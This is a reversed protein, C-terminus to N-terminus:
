LLHDEGLPIMLQFFCSLAAPLGLLRHTLNGLSGFAVVLSPRPPPYPLASARDSRRGQALVPARASFGEAGSRTCGSRSQSGLSLGEHCSAVIRKAPHRGWNALAVRQSNWNGSFWYVRLSWCSNTITFPKTAPHYGM